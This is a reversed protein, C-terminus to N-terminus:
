SLAESLKERISSILTLMLGMNAYPNTIVSLVHKDDIGFIIITGDKGGVVVKQLNGLSLESIVREGVNYLAAGMAAILNEDGHQIASALVLGDTRIIASAEIDPDSAEMEELISALKQRLTKMADVKV